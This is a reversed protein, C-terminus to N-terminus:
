GRHRSARTRNGPMRQQRTQKTKRTLLAALRKGQGREGVPRTLRLSRNRLSTGTCDPQATRQGLDRISAGQPRVDRGIPPMKVAPRCPTFGWYVFVWGVAYQQNRRCSWFHYRRIFRRIQMQQPSGIASFSSARERYAFRHAEQELRKSPIDSDLRDLRGAKSSM